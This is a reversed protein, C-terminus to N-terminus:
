IIIITKIQSLHYKTFGCKNRNMQNTKPRANHTNIGEGCTVSERIKFITRLCKIKPKEITKWLLSHHRSLDRNLYKKFLNKIVGEHDQNCCIIRFTLIYRVILM